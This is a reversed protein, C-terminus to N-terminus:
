KGFLKKFLGKKEATLFRHAKEEGLFR